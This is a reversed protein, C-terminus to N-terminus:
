LRVLKTRRPGDRPESAARSHRTRTRRGAHGRRIPCAPVYGPPSETASRVTPHGAWRGGVPLSSDAFFFQFPPGGELNIPEHGVNRLVFSHYEDVDGDARIFSRSERLVRLDGPM